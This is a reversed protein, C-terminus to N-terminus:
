TIGRYRSSGSSLRVACGQAEPRNLVFDPIPAGDPNRGLSPLDISAGASTSLVLGKETLPVVAQAGDRAEWLARVLGPQLWPMDAAVALVWEDPADKLATVLGGLPGQYAVEDVLVPVDRPLGADALAEPRNTVVVTHECVSGVAEVVRSLLSEGGVPLLTKDVGMRM